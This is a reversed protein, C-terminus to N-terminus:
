PTFGQGELRGPLPKRRPPPTMEAATVFSPILASSTPPTTSKSITLYVRSGKPPTTQSPWCVAWRRPEQYIKCPSTQSSINRSSPQTPLIYVLSLLKDLLRQCTAQTAQPQPYVLLQLAHGVAPALLGGLSDEPHLPRLAPPREQLPPIYQHPPPRM